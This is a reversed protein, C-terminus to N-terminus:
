DRDACGQGSAFQLPRVCLGRELGLAPRDTRPYPTKTGLSRMLAMVEMEKPQLYDKVSLSHYTALSTDAVQTKM